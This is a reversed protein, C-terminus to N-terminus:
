SQRWSSRGQGGLDVGNDEDDAKQSALTLMQWVARLIMKWM